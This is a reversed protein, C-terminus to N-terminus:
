QTGGKRLLQDLPLYPIAAQGSQDLIVKNMGGMVREMTELYLRKRTVDPAQKYEQHVSIFRSAEGEAEKVVRARYAEAEQKLKESEGRAEALRQNAYAEAQKELTDRNQAAAQVDRFSDIVAEPPDARDFNVRVINVGSEYSDLTTQVLTRVQQAVVARDRNLIPKMQSKGVIERMASEAVSKITEEPGALNFLFKAPDNINWIVQFNIDIINEDGTLMLSEEQVERRGRSDSRFGIDISMERTVPFVVAEQIPWLAFHLGPGVTQQYKGLTLVVGAEEPKVTYAATMAYVVLAALGGLVWGGKGMPPRLGGGGGFGGGMANKLRDQGRRFLDEVEANGRGGWPNGTNPRNQNGGSNGWPNQSKNGDGGWPNRSGDGGSNNHIPM